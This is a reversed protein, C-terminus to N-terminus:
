DLEKAMAIASKIDKKQSSKDGGCLLIVVTNGRKVLYVRYGPGYDIRLEGIGDFFRADGLNGLEVRAIRIEIRAQARVDKLSKLWNSFVTSHRVEIM